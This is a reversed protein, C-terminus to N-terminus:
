SKININTIFSNVLDINKLGPQIEFKSNIDIGILNKLKLNKITAADNPTIGGSLLFSGPIDLKNLIQWDFKQGTGGPIKAKTDLLFLKCKGKYADFIDQKTKHDIRFAKIVDYGLNSLFQCTQPSENGHLQITKINFKTTKAIINSVMENVFVGVKQAHTKPLIIDNTINRPSEPYFIFGLYDPNLADIATINEANRMGCIKIKLRKMTAFKKYISPM